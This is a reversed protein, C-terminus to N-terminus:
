TPSRHKIHTIDLVCCILLAKMLYGDSNWKAQTKLQNEPLLAMTHKRHLRNITSLKEQQITQDVSHPMKRGQPFQESPSSCHLRNELYHTPPTPPNEVKYLITTLNQM